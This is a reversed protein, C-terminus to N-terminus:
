TRAENVQVDKQMRPLEIREEGEEVLVLGKM